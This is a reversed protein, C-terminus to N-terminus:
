LEYNGRRDEPKIYKLGLYKFIDEETKFYHVKGTKLDTLGYQNLKYGKKKAYMRIDRSFDVGSGFFLLYFPLSREDTFRLDVHVMKKGNCMISLLETESSAYYDILLRKKELIKIIEPFKLKKSTLILDIDKMEIKGTRYSGAFYIKVKNDLAKELRKKFLTIENRSIKDNLVSYYKVGLKQLETMKHRRKFQTLTRIDQKVLKKATQPGVGLIKQLKIIDKLNKDQKLKDLTKLRGTKQIEEIRKQTKKSFKASENLELLKLNKKYARARFSNGTKDYIDYLETFIKRIKEKNKINGGTQNKLRKFNRETYKTNTELIMPIKNKIAIECIRKLPEYNNKFIFGEGISAHRDRMAHFEVESDNIHILKINKIGILKNFKNFYDNVGEVTRIDYGSTFIHQTDVCVGLRKDKVRNFIKAFDELKWGVRSGSQAPTEMLLKSRPKSNKLMYKISKVCNTIAQTNTLEYYKSRAYGLHVVVGKSNIQTSYNLDHIVNNVAWLYRGKHKGDIPNCINVRLSSHIFLEVNHKKFFDKIKKKEKTTWNPKTKLTTSIKDGLYIQLADPKIKKIKNLCEQDLNSCEFGILLKKGIM